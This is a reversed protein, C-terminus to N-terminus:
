SRWTMMGTDNRAMKVISLHGEVELYYGYRGHKFNWETYVIWGERYTGSVTRVHTGVPYLPPPSTGGTEQLEKDAIAQRLLNAVDRLCRNRAFELLTKKEAFYETDPNAGRDLLTKVIDARGRHVAHVILSPNSWHSGADLLTEVMELDGRTIAWSLATSELDNLAHIDAGGEILARLVAANGEHDSAWMLATETDNDRHNPNAGARLLEEVMELRDRSAARILATCGAFDTADVPVGQKLLWRIVELLGQEAARIFMGGIQDQNEKELQYGRELLLRFVGLSRHEVAM